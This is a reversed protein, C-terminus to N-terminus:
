GGAAQQKRKMAAARLDDFTIRRAKPLAVAPLAKQKKRRHALTASASEAEVESVVGSPRGSLDIRPRGAVMAKLYRHDHTYLFLGRGIQVPSLDPLAAAIDAHIGVKIPVRYSQGPAAFCGPFREHLIGLTKVAESKWQSKSNPSKSLPRKVLEAGGAPEVTVVPRGEEKQTM